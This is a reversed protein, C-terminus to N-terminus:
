PRLRPIALYRRQAPKPLREIAYRLMTRPMRAVYQDLFRKLVKEDKKGAERLMWGCAKHILDHTDGMLQETIRFTDDLQGHRIFTWTAVIAIRREWLNRSRALRDLISRSRNLLHTGVINPASADVLDWNNIRAAHALYFRYIETPHGAYQKTLIIVGLLREEHIKSALLRAVDSLPLDPYKQAIARTQPVTVGIFRDGEGYEGKGTKFFWANTKARALTSVRKLDRRAAALAPM